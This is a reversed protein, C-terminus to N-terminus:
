AGQEETIQTQARRAELVTAQGWVNCDTTLTHTALLYDHGLNLFLGKAPLGTLPQPLLKWPHSALHSIAAARPHYLPSQLINGLSFCLTWLSPSLHQHWSCLFLQAPWAGPQEPLLLPTPSRPFTHPKKRLFLFEAKFMNLKLRQCFMWTSIAQVCGPIYSQFSLTLNHWFSCDAPHSKALSHPVRRKGDGGACLPAKEGPGPAPAESCHETGRGTAAGRAWCLQPWMSWIGLPHSSPIETRLNEWAMRHCHDWRVKSFVNQWTKGRKVEAEVTCTKPTKYTREKRGGAMKLDVHHREASNM